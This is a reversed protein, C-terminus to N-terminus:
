HYSQNTNTCYYIIIILIVWCYSYCNLHIERCAANAHERSSCVDNEWHGWSEHFMLPGNGSWLSTILILNVVSKWLTSKSNRCSWSNEKRWATWVPEPTWEAELVFPVPSEKSPPIFCRLTFSVVWRWRTGFDRFRPDICCGWVDEHRLAWNTLCMCKSVDM